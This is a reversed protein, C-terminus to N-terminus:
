AKLQLKKHDCQSEAECHGDGYVLEAQKCEQTVFVAASPDASDNQLLSPQV